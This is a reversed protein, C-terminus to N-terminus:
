NCCIANGNSFKYEVNKVTYQQSVTTESQAPNQCLNTTGFFTGVTAEISSRDLTRINPSWRGKKRYFRRRTKRAM